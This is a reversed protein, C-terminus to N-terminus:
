SLNKWHNFIHVSVPYAFDKGPRHSAPQLEASPWEAEM